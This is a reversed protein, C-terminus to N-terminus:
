ETRARENDRNASEYVTAAAVSAVAAALNTCRGDAEAPPRTLPPVHACARARAALKFTRRRELKKVGRRCGGSM